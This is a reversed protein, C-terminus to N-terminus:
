RALIIRKQRKKKTKPIAVSTCSRQLELESEDLENWLANRKDRMNMYKVPCFNGDNYCKLLSPNSHIDGTDFLTQTESATSFLM